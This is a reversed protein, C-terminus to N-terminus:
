LSQSLCNASKYLRIARLSDKEANKRLDEGEKTKIQSLWYESFRKSLGRIETKGIYVSFSYKGQAIFLEGANALQSRLAETHAVKIQRLNKFVPYMEQDMDTFPEGKYDPAKVTTTEVSGEQKAVKLDKNQQWSLWSYRPAM